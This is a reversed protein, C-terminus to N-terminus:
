RCLIGCRHLVMDSQIWLHFRKAVVKPDLVFARLLQVLFDDFPHVGSLRIERFQIVKEFVDTARSAQKALFERVHSPAVEHPFDLLIPFYLRKGHIEIEICVCLRFEVFDHRSTAAAFALVQHSHLVYELMGLGGARPNQQQRLLEQAAFQLTQGIQSFCFLNDLLEFKFPIGLPLEHLDHQNARIVTGRHEAAQLQVELRMLGLRHQVRKSPPKKCSAVHRILEGVPISLPFSISVPIAVSRPSTLPLAVMSSLAAAISIPVPLAIM